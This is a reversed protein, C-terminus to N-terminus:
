VEGERNNTRVYVYYRLQLKFKCEVMDNDLVNAVVGLSGGYM